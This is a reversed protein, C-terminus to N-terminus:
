KKQGTEDRGTYDWIHYLIWRNEYVLLDVRLDKEFPVGFANVERVRIAVRCTKEGFTIKAPNFADFRLPGSETKGIEQTATRYADIEQSTWIAPAPAWTANKWVYLAAGIVPILLLPAWGIKM